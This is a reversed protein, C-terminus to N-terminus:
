RYRGESEGIDGRYRGQMDQCDLSCTKARAARQRAAGGSGGTAYTVAPGTPPAHGAPKCQSFTETVAQCSFATGGNSCCTTSGSDVNPTNCQQWNPICSGQNNKGLQRHASGAVELARRGDGDEALEDACERAM